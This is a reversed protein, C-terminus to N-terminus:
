LLGLQVCFLTCRLDEDTLYALFLVSPYPKMTSSIFHQTVWIRFKMIPNIQKENKSSDMIIVMICKPSILILLQTDLLIFSQDPELSAAFDTSNESHCLVTPLLQISFCLFIFLANYIKFYKLTKDHCSYLIFSM